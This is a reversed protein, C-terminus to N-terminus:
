GRTLLAEVMEDRELRAGIEITLLQSAVHSRPPARRLLASAPVILVRWDSEEALQTLTAMRQMEARRDPVVDLLPSTDAATFTLVDGNPDGLLFRLNAEHRHADDLDPTVVVFRENPRAAVSEALVWDLAGAPISAVDVRKERGLAEVLDRISANATELTAELSM